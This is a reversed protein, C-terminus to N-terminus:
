DTILSCGGPRPADVGNETAGETQGETASTGENSADPATPSELALFAREGYLTSKGATVVLKVTYRGEIDPSLRAESRDSDEIASASGVPKEVLIWEYDAPEEGPVVSGSGDLLVSEGLAVQGGSEASLIDLAGDIQADIVVAQAPFEAGALGYRLEYGNAIAASLAQTVYVKASTSASTKGDSVTFTASYTGTVDAIFSATASTATALSTKSGSPLTLTWKYTLTDGDEDTAKGQLLVNDGVRRLQNPGPNVVPAHNTTTTTATVYIKATAVATTKGDGVTLTASYTGIVDAVFSATASTASALPAKSGSPLSLTWKYTLSDGDTDSGKGQLLVNDGVHRLQNPGASVTPTINQIAASVYIQVTAPASTGKGDSVALTATYTGALDATFSIKSGTFSNTENAPSVLAWNYTLPSDGDADTATGQLTVTEGVTRYQASGANAVPVHNTGGFNLAFTNALDLRGGTVSKGSLGSIPEVGQLIADIVERHTLSPDEAWLLATAGSVHPTAMSTGSLYHYPPNEKWEPYTSEIFVGPAGLDVSIKGYNSFAPVTDDADTAAVSMINGVSYAAPYKPYSDCNLGDNGAAAVFVVGAADAAAIADRLSQVPEQSPSSPLGKTGSYYFDWSNSIVKAGNDVAYDIAEIADGLSGVGNSAMFKLAMLEVNWDIGAVGIGNNAVAGITGAVHTGHFYDDYPDGTGAYFNYGYYDDVYGNGDDDKGNGAVEGPNRWMNDALDEHEYDIGSDLVAVVVPDPTTLSDWVSEMGIDVGAIAGDYQGTNDLAWLDPYRPDNPVSDAEIEYNPEAYIVLSEANLENLVDDRSRSPDGALRYIRSAESYYLTELAHNRLIDGIEGETARRSFKVLFESCFSEGCDGDEAFAPFAFSSICFIVLLVHRLVNM